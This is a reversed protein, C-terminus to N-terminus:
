RLAQAEVKEAYELARQVAEVTMGTASAITYVSFGELLKMRRISQCKQAFPLTEFHMRAPNM